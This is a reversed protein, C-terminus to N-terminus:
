RGRRAEKDWGERCEVSCWRHEDAVVEDCYLCRGTALPGAPRRMRISDALNREAQENARDIEDAM